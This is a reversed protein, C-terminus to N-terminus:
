FNNELKYHISIAGRIDGVKYGQGMDNPYQEQLRQKVNPSIDVANGHCQLCLAQTPIAKMYRYSSGDRDQVLQVIEMEAPSKGASKQLDFNELVQKEFADPIGQQLNRPKLSVRKVTIEDDSYEAALAPAVQKCVDIASETGATEIQQKLMSSLTQMFLQATKRSSELYQTQLKDDNAKVSSITMITGLASVLIFIGTNKM